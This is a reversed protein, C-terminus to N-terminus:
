EKLKSSDKTLEEILEEAGSCRFSVVKLLDSLVSSYPFRWLQQGSIDVIQLSISTDWYPYKKNGRMLMALQNRVLDPEQIRYKYNILRLHKGSVTSEFGAIPIFDETADPLDAADLPRWSVEGQQTRSMLQAIAAIAKDRDM